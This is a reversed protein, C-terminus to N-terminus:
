ERLGWLVCAMLAAILADTIEPQRGALHRQLFELLLLAAATATGARLYRVGAARLLWVMSGYEFGKRLLMLTANQREALLTASFPIWSFANVAPTFRFPQLERLAIAFAMMCAGAVVKSKGGPLMWLLLAAVAGIVEAPTLHREVILLRLPLSLMALALWPTRLRGALARLLLAFAFWEATAACLEVASFPAAALRAVNAHLRGRSLLPVFPFLQYGGWCCALLLAGAAGRRSKRSATLQEIEPQFLLAVIVGVAAGLLNCIVDAMSCTRGADYVQLMEISASLVLGLLLATAGAVARPLRHAMVLFATVGLPFYLLLNVGADRWEFKNFKAPWAHLLIWLPSTDTRDFDFHFPYLSGYLILALVILLLRLL